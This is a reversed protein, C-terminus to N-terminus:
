GRCLLIECAAKVGEPTDTDHDTLVTLEMRNPKLTHVKGVYPKLRRAYASSVPDCFLPLADGYQSTIGEVVAEPLAPDFVLLRAGKIMSERRRIFEMDMRQLVSMDSLAVYMEGREDLLSMYTSSPHGEVTMCQSMDIGAATSEERIMHGYLDSGLASILKVSGGLRALNECINRTVGGLSISMAGPNSDAMIIPNKSRGCIDVNAAGIGVAYEFDNVLYIRGSIYGKKQLNSIHVAVSARAINLRSAIESQEIDPQKKIIELIERERNTM